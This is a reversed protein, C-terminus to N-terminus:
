NGSTAPQEVEHKHLHRKIDPWFEKLVNSLSDTAIQMGWRQVTDELGRNDPYYANGVGAMIGNGLVESYNFRTGGADTHTVLVRTLAYGMRGWKPGTVKRFYRPDEHLLTPLVAETMLNGMSQDIYSTWYRHAYGKLGQGFSPNENELQYLGAFAGSVLYNPWDFSDKTAITFKQKPTLPVYVDMPNATRYNPLVGLIRHDVEEQKEEPARIVGPTNPATAAPPAATEATQQGFSFPAFLLASFIFTTRPLACRCVDLVNM